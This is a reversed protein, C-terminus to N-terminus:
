RDMEERQRNVEAFDLVPAYSNMSGRMDNAFALAEAYTTFEAEREIVARYVKIQMLGDRGPDCVDTEVSVRM